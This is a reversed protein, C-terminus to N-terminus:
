RTLHGYRTSWIEKRVVIASSRRTYVRVWEGGSADPPAHAVASCTCRYTRPRPASAPSTSTVMVPSQLSYLPEGNQQYGRAGAIAPVRLFHVFPNIRTTLRPQAMVCTKISYVRSTVRTGCQKRWQNLKSHYNYIRIYPADRINM